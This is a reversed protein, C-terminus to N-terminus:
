RRRSRHRTCTDGRARRTSRVQWCRPPMPRGGAALAMSAGYYAEFDIGFQGDPTSAQRVMALGLVSGGVMLLLAAVVVRFRGSRLTRVGPLSVIGGLRLAAM